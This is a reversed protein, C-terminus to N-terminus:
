KPTGLVSMVTAPICVRDRVVTSGSVTVGTFARSSFESQGLVLVFGQTQKLFSGLAWIGGGWENGMRILKEPHIIKHVPFISIFVLFLALMDNPCLIRVLHEVHSM